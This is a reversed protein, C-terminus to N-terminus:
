KKEEIIEKATEHLIIEYLNGVENKIKNYLEIVKEQFYKHMESSWFSPFNQYIPNLSTWYLEMVLENLKIAEESLGLVTLDDINYNYKNQTKEDFGWLWNCEYDLMFQFRYKEM